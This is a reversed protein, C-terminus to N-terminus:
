RSRGGSAQARQAEESEGQYRASLRPPGRLSWNRPPGAAAGAPPAQAPPPASGLSMGCILAELRDMKKDSARHKVDIYQKLQEIADITSSNTVALPPAETPPANEAVVVKRRVSSWINSIGLMREAAVQIGRTLALKVTAKRVLKTVVPNNAAAIVSHFNKKNLAWVHVFTVTWAPYVFCIRQNTLLLADEGWSSSRVLIQGDRACVGQCVLFLTEGRHVAEQPSFIQSEFKLTIQLMASLHDDAITRLWAIRSNNIVTAGFRACEGGLGPSLKTLLSKTEKDKNQLRKFMVYKRLKRAFTFDKVKNEILFENVQDM